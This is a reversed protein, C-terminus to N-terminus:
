ALAAIMAAGTLDGYVRFGTRRRTRRALDPPAEFRYGVYFDEAQARESTESM